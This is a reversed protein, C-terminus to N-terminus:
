RKETLEIREVGALCEEILAERDLGAEAQLVAELQPRTKPHRPTFVTCCDEYPLISTEFTGIRRALAVIEEKDMGILPRLVPLTTSVDTVGLAEMTQSAVQGLSEGTILAGAKARVAVRGAIDMMFRRMILTFYDEPCQRRIAEQVKTFPVLRLLAPGTWDALQVALTKVKDLAEPSTYPYSYFHLPLPKVGRKAIMYGAVPSDIGGSLLLLAQGGCGPPLGGAGPTPAGHVYAARDRVEVVVQVDPNRVDVTLHPFADHLDGGVTRSIEPSTLPFLKDSRKAEVKFSRARVLAGRLYDAAGATIAGIDKPVECARTLTMVGFVKACADFAGDMDADGEPMVSIVSQRSEVTFVGFRRVRRAVEEVLQREFRGRNLGKLVLEGLKLM